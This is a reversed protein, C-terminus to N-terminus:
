RGMPTWCCHNGDYNIFYEFAWEKIVGVSKLAFNPQDAM